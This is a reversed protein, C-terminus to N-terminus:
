WPFYDSRILAQTADGICDPQGKCSPGSAKKEAEFAERVLLYERILKCAHWDPNDKPGVEMCQTAQEATKIRDYIEANENRDAKKKKLFVLMEDVYAIGADYDGITDYLRLITSIVSLVGLGQYSKPPLKEAYKLKLHSIVEYIAEPAKENRYSILAQYVMEEDISPQHGPMLSLNNQVNELAAEYKGQMVLATRLWMRAVGNPRGEYLWYKPDDAVRLKEEAEIYKGQYLLVKGEKELKRTIRLKEASSIAPRRDFTVKNVRASYIALCILSSMGLIFIMLPKHKIIM